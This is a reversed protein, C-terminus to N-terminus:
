LLWCFGLFSLIDKCTKPQPWEKVCKIKEPDTAVGNKSIVHGLYHIEQKFFQCKSEKLKLGKETIITLIKDLNALHNEFTDSFVLLDDLYILM